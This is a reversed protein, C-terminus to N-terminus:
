SPRKQAIHLSPGPSGRGPAVASCCRLMTGQGRDGPYGCNRQWSGNISQTPAFWRVQGTRRSFFAIAPDGTTQPFAVALEKREGTMEVRRSIGPGSEAQFSKAPVARSPNGM